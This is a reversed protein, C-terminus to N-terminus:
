ELGLYIHARRGGHNHLLEMRVARQVLAKEMEVGAREAELNVRHKSDMTSITDLATKKLSLM